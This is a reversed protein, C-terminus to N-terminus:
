REKTIKNELEKDCKECIDINMDDRHIIDRQDVYEFCYDCRAAIGYKESGCYPCYSSYEYCREGWFEHKDAIVNAEEFLRNCDNCIFM